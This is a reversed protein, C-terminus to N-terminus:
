KRTNEKPSRRRGLEWLAVAMTAHSTVLAKRYKDATPGESVGESEENFKAAVLQRAETLGIAKAAVKKAM